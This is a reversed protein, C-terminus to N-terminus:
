ASRACHVPAQADVLAAVLEVNLRHGGRHAVITGNLDQEALALDGVLDLAKHRACENEYRLENDILGDPGFVLLDSHRVHHGFGAQQLFVAEEELLFTRSAAMEECFVTPTLQARYVQPEISNEPGYDLQYEIFLGDAEAPRAEVWSEADGVRLVTDVVLQRRPKDQTVVGAQLLASVLPACSGDLGPLEPADVWIECNDIRLGALAALVHEVMEVRVGDCELVTRRHVDVRCDYRAPVRSAPSVDCRVFVLGTDPEAPRFEVRVDTGSWYGWGAVTAARALTRQPRVCSADDM